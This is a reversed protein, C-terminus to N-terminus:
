RITGQWILTQKASRDGLSRTVEIEIDVGVGSMLYRDDIPL